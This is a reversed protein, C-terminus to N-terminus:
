EDQPDTAIDCFDIHGGGGLSHAGALRNEGVKKTRQYTYVLDPRDAATLVQYPLLQMYTPDTELAHRQMIVVHPAIDRIFDDWALDNFGQHCKLVQTLYTTKVALIFQPHKVTPIVQ